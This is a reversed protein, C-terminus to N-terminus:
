IYLCIIHLNKSNLYLIIKIKTKPKTIQPQQDARVTFNSYCFTTKIFLNQNNKNLQFRVITTDVNGKAIKVIKALNM